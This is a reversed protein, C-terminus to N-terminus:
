GAIELLNGDPDRFFVLPPINNGGEAGFPESLFEVGNERLAAITGDFDEVELGLYRIGLFDDVVGATSAAEANTTVLKLAFPGNAVTTFEFGNKSFGGKRAKEDSVVVEKIREFGLVDTYFRLSEELDRVALAIYARTNAKLQM